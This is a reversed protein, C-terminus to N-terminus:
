AAAGRARLKARAAFARAAAATAQASPAAIPGTASPQLGRAAGVIQALKAVVQEGSAIQRSLDVSLREASKLRQGLSAESDQVTLKLGAIARQAGETATVLEAITAKLAQEDARLRQLRKNLMICYVITLVLLVAVLSEILLGFGANM